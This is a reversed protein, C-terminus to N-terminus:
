LRKEIYAEARLKIMYKRAALEIKQGMLMESIQATDPEVAVEADEKDKRDCVLFISLGVGNRLVTSPEGSKLGAVMGRIEPALSKIQLRGYDRFSVGSSKGTEVSVKQYTQCNTIKGSIAHMKQEAAAVQDATSKPDLPLSIQKLVVESESPDGIILTKIKNLRLIEYGKETRIPDSVGSIKLKEVAKLIKNDLKDPLVLGMEGGDAATEGSSFQKATNTFNGGSKLEAVLKVALAKVEDEKKEDEIKLVIESLDYQKKGTQNAMIQIQDQVENEGISIKPRIKEIVIKKWAVQSKIQDKVSDEPFNNKALFGQFGGAELHNQKEIDAIADQMDSDTVEIKLRAAEQNKLKEDILIELVQPRVKNQVEPTDPLGSSRTALDVRHALTYSSIEEGNVIAAIKDEEAYASFTALTFIVFIFIIQIFRM